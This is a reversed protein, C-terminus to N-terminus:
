YKISLLVRLVISLMMSTYVSEKNAAIFYHQIVLNRMHVDVHCHTVQGHHPAFSLMCYRTLDHRYLYKYHTQPLDIDIDSDLSTTNLCLMSCSLISIVM